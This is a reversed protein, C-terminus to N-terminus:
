VKEHFFKSIKFYKKSQNKFVNQLKSFIWDNKPSVFTKFM